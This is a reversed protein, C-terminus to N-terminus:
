NPLPFRVAHDDSGQPILDGLQGLPTDDPDPTESSPPRLLARVQADFRPESVDYGRYLRLRENSGQDDVRNGGVSWVMFGNGSRQYNLPAKHFLDKTAQPPLKLAELSDPYDGQECRYRCLAATVRLLQFETLARDEASYCLTVSPMLTALLLNAFTESRKKRSLISQVVVGASPKAQQLRSEIQTMRDQRQQWTPTRGAEVLEDYMANIRRMVINWDVSVRSAPGMAPGFESAVMASGDPTRRQGSLTLVASLSNLREAQDIVQAMSAQPQSAACFQEIQQVLELSDTRQLLHKTASTAMSRCAISVLEGVLSDRPVHEGLAFMAQCDDWALQFEGEGIRLMARAQLNRIAGRIASAHPLLAAILTEKPTVLLTPSPSFFHPRRAAEHLLAYAEQERDIWDALPPLENRKWPRALKESIIGEADLREISESSEVPLTEDRSGVPDQEELFENIATRVNGNYCDFGEQKDPPIPMGLEAFFRDRYEADIPGSGIAQWFSVAGNNESTVGKGARDVLYSSYDPLGDDALPETIFTTDKAVEIQPKLGFLSLLLGGCSLVCLLALVVITLKVPSRRRPNSDNM